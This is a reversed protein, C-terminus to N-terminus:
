PVGHGSNSKVVSVDTANISGNVAVDTRFNTANASAGSQGKTQGVDTSNVTKNGTTDGILMNVSVSTDAMVQASTDTVGSLTVTIKQVDSVGTLNVTMTHGVFAPSGSVNGIGTTVSASGAIVDNSFTFVLTHNGGSSRCEVGPEGSLPLPINFIGAGGHTKQSVASMLQLPSIVNVTGIMGRSCHAVCYYTYSGATDFTHQYVTGTNSLMGASCNTDNPSCYESDASCNEGSTVSHGSGAWTWRVTDGVAINVTAPSFVLQGSPGVSVDFIQSTASPLSSPVARGHQNLVVIANNAHAKKPQAVGDAKVKCPFLLAGASIALLWGIRGVRVNSRKM